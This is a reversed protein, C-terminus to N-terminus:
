PEFLRLGLKHTAELRDLFESRSILTAGLAAFHPTMTEIDMWNAGHAALHDILHLLALKSANSVTHFMSEGSFVGDIEVGYLGGVLAGESDWAEASHAYGARHLRNYAQVFEETIWTGYQGPRPAARCAEIVQDFARDLTFTLGLRRRLRALRGPVHLRSFELIARQEPCFWPLVPLDMPWPFIGHRYAFTLTNVSLDNGIAVIDQDPGAFRPDIFQM